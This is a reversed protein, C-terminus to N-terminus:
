RIQDINLRHEVLSSASLERAQLVAIHYTIDNWILSEESPLPLFMPSSQNIIALASRKKNTQWVLIWRKMRLLKESTLSVFSLVSHSSGYNLYWCLQLFAARPILECLRRIILCDGVRLSGKLTNHQLLFFSSALLSSSRALLEFLCNCCKQYWWFSELLSISHVRFAPIVECSFVRM